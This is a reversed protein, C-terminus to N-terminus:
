HATPLNVSTVNTKLFRPLHVLAALMCGDDYYLRQTTKLKVLLRATLVITSIALLTWVTRILTPGRNDGSTAILDEVFSVVSSTGMTELLWELLAVTNTEGLSTVIKSSLLDELETISLQELLSPFYKEIEAAIASAASSDMNVGDDFSDIGPLFSSPPM